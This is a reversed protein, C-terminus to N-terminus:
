NSRCSTFEQKQSIATRFSEFAHLSAEVASLMVCLRASRGGARTMSLLAFYRMGLVGYPANVLRTSRGGARTMSLSAFYRM